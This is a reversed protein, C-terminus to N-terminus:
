TGNQSLFCRGFSTFPRKEAVITQAGLLTYLTPVFNKPPSFLQKKIINTM